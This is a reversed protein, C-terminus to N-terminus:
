RKGGLNAREAVGPMNEYTYELGIRFVNQEIDAGLTGRSLQDRYGDAYLRVGRTIEYDVGGGLRRRTLEANSQGLALNSAYYRQTENSAQLSIRTKASAQWRTGLQAGTGLAYLTAPDTIGYPRKWVDLTVRTKPSFEHNVNLETTLASFNMTDLNAYARQLSAIRGGFGTLVSYQWNTQAYIEKDKFGSDLSSIQAASRRPAIVDTSRVGVRFNSGTTSKFRVAVDSSREENDFAWNVPSDYTLQRRSIAVPIEIDPSVRLALEANDATSHTMERSTM